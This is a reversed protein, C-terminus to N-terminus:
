GRLGLEYAQLEVRSYVSTAQGDDAITVDVYTGRGGMPIAFTRAGTGGTGGWIFGGWTTSGWVGAGISARLTYSYAGSPTSWTIMASASSGIDAFLYMWRFAKDASPNRTFFRRCGLVLSFTDGATGDELVDDYYLGPADSRRLIGDESGFLVLSAGNEDVAEWQATTHTDLYIGNWPGTWARLRYNYVYAGADPIAWRIERNKRDHVANVIPLYDTPLAATLPVTPDPHRPSDLASVGGDTIAYAGRDSLFFGQGDVSIASRPMLTGVDSSFGQVGTAIAIDEQTLGVFRSIGSVHFLALSDRLTLLNTLKQDGFTRVVASGGLSGTIGLTDGNNLASYYVTQDEGSIGLLRQNYVALRAINAPTGGTTIRTLTTGDWKILPGGDALYLVEGSGDRFAAWSTYTSDSLAAGAALTEATWTMGIAYATDGTYFVGESLLVHEVSAARQWCFGGQIANGFEADQVRQTGLRKMASGFQTLRANDARTVQNSAVSFSDGTTNLGGAFGTQTDELMPRNRFYNSM